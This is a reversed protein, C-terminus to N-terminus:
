SLISYLFSSLLQLDFLSLHILLVELEFLFAFEHQCQRETQELEFTHRREAEERKHQLRRINNEFLPVCSRVDAPDVLTSVTLGYMFQYKRGNFSKYNIQPLEFAAYHSLILLRSRKCKISRM